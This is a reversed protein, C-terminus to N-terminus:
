GIVITIVAAVIWGLMGAVLATLLMNDRLLYAQTKGSRGRLYFGILSGLFIGIGAGATQNIAQALM